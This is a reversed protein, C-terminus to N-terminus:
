PCVCCPGACDELAPGHRNKFLNKSASASSVACLSRHAPPSVITAFQPERWKRDFLNDIAFGVTMRRYTYAANMDVIFYGKATLSYDENAPRNSLWRCNVGANFGKHKWTLGATLTHVPALPIYDEGKPEDISRAHCWTYDTRFYFDRLFNYRLGM